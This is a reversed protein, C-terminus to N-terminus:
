IMTGKEMALQQLEFLVIELQPIQKKTTESPKVDTGLAEDTIEQVDEPYAKWLPTMYKKIEMLIEEHTYTKKQEIKKKEEFSISKNGTMEEKKKVAYEIGKQINEATFEKIERPMFEFRSGALYEDTEAFYISSKIVNGNEDVGNSKVYGLFDVAEIIIDISRKDGKPAYKEVEEGTRGDKVKRIESHSIGYIFFGANLLPQMTSFWEVAYEEWLGYGGNGDNIREVGFKSCVYSKCWRILVDFTDIILTTHLDRPYVEKDKGNKKITRPKKSTLQKVVKKFDSWSDLAMYPLGDIANIGQECRLYLPKPMESGVTTKGCKVSESHILMLKGEVGAVVKSVQPNYIDFDAM